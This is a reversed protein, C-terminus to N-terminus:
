IKEFRDVDLVFITAGGVTVEVPSTAYFGGMGPETIAPIAQRRSKSTKSIVALAEDVREDEVGSIITVNGAMLFGGTTALKTVSFGGQTLSKIVRQADDHSVIALILKM